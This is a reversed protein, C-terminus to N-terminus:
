VDDLTVTNPDAKKVVENVQPATVTKTNLKLDYPNMEENLFEIAQERIVSYVSKAGIKTAEGPLISITVKKLPIDGMKKAFRAIADSLKIEEAKDESIGLLRSKGFSTTDFRVPYAGTMLEGFVGKVLGLDDMAYLKNMDTDGLKKWLAALVQRQRQMRECDSAPTGKYNYTIAYEVAAKGRLLQQGKEYVEGDLTTSKALEVKIGGLGDIIEALGVRPVILYNDVPLGYQDNIVRILDNKASGKKEELDAGCATHTGDEREKEPVRERCASCFIDPQPNYWIDGITDVAFGNDKDIYTDVPIQMLSVTEAKRNYCMVALMDMKDGVNEGTVGLLYYSVKQSLKDATVEYEVMQRGSLQPKDEKVRLWRVLLVILVVLVVAAVGILAWQWPLLKKKTKKKKTPTKAAGALSVQNKRPKSQAGAKKTGTSKGNPQKSHNM